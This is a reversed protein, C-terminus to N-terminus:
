EVFRGATETSRSPEREAQMQNRVGQSLFGPMVMSANLLNWSPEGPPHVHADCDACHCDDRYCACDTTNNALGRGFRDLEVFGAHGRLLRPIQVGGGAAQEFGDFQIEDQERM